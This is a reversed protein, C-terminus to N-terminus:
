SFLFFSFGSPFSLKQQRSSGDPCGKRPDCMVNFAIRVNINKIVTSDRVKPDDCRGYTPCTGAQAEFPGQLLHMANVHQLHDLVM